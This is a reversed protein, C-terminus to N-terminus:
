SEGGLEALRAGPSPAGRCTIRMRTLTQIGTVLSELGTAQESSPLRGLRELLDEVKTTRLKRQGLVGPSCSAQESESKEFISGHLRRSQVFVDIKIQLGRLMGHWPQRECVGDDLVICIGRSGVQSFPPLKLCRNMRVTSSPDHLRLRLVRLGDGPRRRFRSTKWVQRGRKFAYAIPYAILGSRQVVPFLIVLSNPVLPM